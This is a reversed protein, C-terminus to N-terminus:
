ILWAFTAAETVEYAILVEEPKLKLVNVPLPRPYRIAAYAPYYQRLRAIFAEREKKLGLLEQELEQHRDVDQKQFTAETRKYGSAIRNILEVEQRSLAEPIGVLSESARSAIAELLLRAKTNEAWYFAEAADELALSVRVLGEYPELRSFGVVKAAFFRRRQSDALSDRQREIFEVAKQYAAKAGAYDRLGEQSLGLGIYGAMLFEADRRAEYVEVSRTFEKRAQQFEGARLYYCGLMTPENSQQLVELAEPLRGQALYLDGLNMEEIQTSVGIERKIKLVREYHIFAQHYSGLEGYVNGLNTFSNAEGQRDGIEQKVALAQEYLSRAQSYDGLYWYLNGLNHLDIGEGRRDRVERRIKLSQGYFSLAEPYNGLINYTTGLNGLSAGEGQRDRIERRIELAQEHFSLAEPYNGLRGYVTGLNNLSDGERRRDGVERMIQLSQRYSSLAQSYDGVHVYVNGIGTLAAGEGQRDGSERAIKLAQECSSLAEPYNGLAEYLFCLHGCFTGIGQKSNMQRARRLGQEWAQLAGQFDSRNYKELGQKYYDELPQGWSRDPIGVLLTTCIFGVLIGRRM